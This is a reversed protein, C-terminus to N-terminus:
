VLRRRTVGAVGIGSGLLILSIGLPVSLDSGTFPLATPSAHTVRTVPGAVTV